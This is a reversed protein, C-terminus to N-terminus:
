ANGRLTEDYTVVNYTEILLHESDDALYMSVIDDYGQASESLAEGAEDLDRDWFGSGHGQSDLWWDHGVRELTYDDHEALTREILDINEVYWGALHWAITGRLKTMEADSIIYQDATELFQDGMDYPAPITSWLAADVTGDLVKKFNGEHKNIDINSM